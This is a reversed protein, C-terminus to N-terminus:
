QGCEMIVSMNRKVNLLNVELGALTYTEADIDFESYSTKPVRIVLPYWDFLTVLNTSSEPINSILLLFSLFLGPTMNLRPLSLNHLNLTSVISYASWRQRARGQRSQHTLVCSIQLRKSM